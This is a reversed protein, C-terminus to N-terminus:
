FTSQGLQYKDQRSQKAKPIQEVLSQSFTLLLFHEQASLSQFGIPEFSEEEDDLPLPQHHLYAFVRRLPNTGDPLLYVALLATISLLKDTVLPASELYRHVRSHALASIRNTGASFESNANLRMMKRSAQM